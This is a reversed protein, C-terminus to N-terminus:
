KAALKLLWQEVVAREETSAAPLFERLERAAADRQGNREYFQARMVRAKPIERSALRLDELGEEVRSGKILLISGMVWRARCSNKDLEIARRAEEEAVDWRKTLLLAYALNTRAASDDPMLHVADQLEPVADETRGVRMLDVGINMRAYPAASPDNLAGRLIEIARRYDGKESAKQAEAFMRASKASLPNRLQRVSVTGPPGVKNTSSPLKIEIRDVGSNINMMEESISEGSSTFLEVRYTGTPVHRFEFSGDGAVFARDIQTHTSADTLKVTLHSGSLQQDSAVVGRISPIIGRDQAIALVAFFFLRIFV